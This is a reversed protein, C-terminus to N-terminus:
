NRFLSVHSFTSELEFYTRLVKQKRPYMYLPFLYQFDIDKIINQIRFKQKRPSETQKFESIQINQIRFGKNQIKFKNNLNNPNTPSLQLHTATNTNPKYKKNPKHELRSNLM